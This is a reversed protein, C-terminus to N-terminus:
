EHTILQQQQSPTLSYYYKHITRSTRFLFYGIKRPTMANTKHMIRITTGTTTFANKAFKGYDYYYKLYEKYNVNTFKLRKTYILGINHPLAIVEGNLIREKQLDMISHLVKSAKSISDNNLSSIGGNRKAIRRLVYKVNYPKSVHGYRDHVMSKIYEEYDVDREIKEPRKM